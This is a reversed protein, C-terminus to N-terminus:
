DPPDSRVIIAGVGEGLEPLPLVGWAYWRGHQMFGHTFGGPSTALGATRRADDPMAEDLEAPTGHHLLETGRYLYVWHV